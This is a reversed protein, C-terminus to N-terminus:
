ARPASLKMEEASRYHNYRTTEATQGKYLFGSFLGQFLRDPVWTSDCHVFCRDRRRM